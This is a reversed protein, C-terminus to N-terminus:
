QFGLAGAMSLVLCCPGAVESTKTEDVDRFLHFGPSAAFKTGLIKMLKINADPDHASSLGLLTYCYKALALSM